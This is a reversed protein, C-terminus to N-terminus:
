TWHSLDRGLWKQLRTNPREYVDSLYRRDKSAMEPKDGSRFFFGRVTSRLNFLRSLAREPLSAKIPSWIRYLARYLQPNGLFSKGKNYEKDTNINERKKVGIFEFLSKVVEETNRAFDRFIVIKMQSKEFYKEYRCLHNIYKGIRLQWKVWENGDERIMSSFSTDPHLYGVNLAHHYHSWIREVPDRLIFILRANPVHEKIRRPVKKRNINEASATGIASEGEYHSFFREYLWDIGKEYGKFFFKPEKNSSMLVNPHDKMYEYLSTTGAKPAGCILFTIKIEEKMIVRRLIRLKRAFDLKCGFM